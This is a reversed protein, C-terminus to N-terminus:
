KTDKKSKKKGSSKDKNDPSEYSLQRCYPYVLDYQDSQSETIFMIDNEIPYETKSILNVKKRPDPDKTLGSVSYNLELDYFNNLEGNQLYPNTDINIRVDYLGTLTKDNEEIYHFLKITVMIGLTRNRLAPIPKDPIIYNHTIIENPSLINAIRIENGSLRIKLLIDKYVINFYKEPYPTNSFTVLGGFCVHNIDKIKNDSNFVILRHSRHRSHYVEYNEKLLESDGNNDTYIIGNNDFMDIDPDNDEISGKALPELTSLDGIYEIM